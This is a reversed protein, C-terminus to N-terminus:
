EVDEGTTMPDAVLYRQHVAQCIQLTRNGSFAILSHYTVFVPDWFILFELDDVGLIECFKKCEQMLFYPANVTGPLQLPASLMKFPTPLNPSTLSLSKLEQM